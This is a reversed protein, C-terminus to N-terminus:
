TNSSKVSRGETFGSDTGYEVAEQSNRGEAFGSDTGDEIAEQSDEVEENWFWTELGNWYLGLDQIAVLSEIPEKFVKSRHCWLGCVQVNM